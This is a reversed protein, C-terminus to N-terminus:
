APEAASPTNMTFVADGLGKPLDGAPNDQPLLVLADRIGLDELQAPTGGRYELHGRGIIGIVLPPNPRARADAIRCAFARDWTQQARVFRDFAPDSASKAKRDPRAGGTVDFLYQRYRQTAPLAPTLGERADEPIAEWGGAGVESVLARRCNLGIMEIRHLRCFDFLPMYLEPAFGWVTGWEAQALFAEETLRGAVWEGLVPNLRAPFMEFGIVIDARHALLGAAVHMQWRHHDAQDHREGLLVVPAAAARAMMEPHAITEGSDPLTWPGPTM